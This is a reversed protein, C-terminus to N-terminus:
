LDRPDLRILWAVMSQLTAQLPAFGATMERTNENMYLKRNIELQLSHRNLSPASHRRVLEVGKYPHNVAVSYGQGLLFEQLAATIAPNATTGDRDGIVFDPHQEGPYLTSLHSAVAPMSHCNIHLCYGHAAHAGDIAQAVAAHYPRWCREIRGAIEAVSLKRGYMETGDELLRWVLGKGLRVKDSAAPLATPWASALLATDVDDPARNADLYSRPFLAQVLTVGMAPAFSYLKEVHTDEADRLRPSDASLWPALGFDAPYDTGSHPSDLVVAQAGGEIRVSPQTPSIQTTVSM